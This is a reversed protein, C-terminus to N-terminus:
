QFQQSFFRQNLWADSPVLAWLVCRYGPYNNRRHRGARWWTLLGELVQAENGEKNLYKILFHHFTLPLCHSVLSKWTRAWPCLDAATACVTVAKTVRLPSRESSPTGPMQLNILVPLNLPQFPIEWIIAPFPDIDKSSQAGHPLNSTRQCLVWLLCFLKEIIFRRFLYKTRQRASCSPLPHSTGTNGNRQVLTNM